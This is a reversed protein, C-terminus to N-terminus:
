QVNGFRTNIIAEFLVIDNPTTIKFNIESGKILALDYGLRAAVDALSIYKDVNDIKSFINKLIKYKFCHPTQTSKLNERKFDSEVINFANDIKVIGDHIDIYTTTAGINKAAEINRKIIDDDVLPRNGDHIMIIDNDKTSELANFCNQISEIGTAGGDIIKELKSINFEKSYARLMPQWEKICAIIIKDIDKNNQFKQLTYIIIPIENVTIFQKPINNYMRSGTGGATLIAITM